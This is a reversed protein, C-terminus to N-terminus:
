YDVHSRNHCILDRIKSININKQTSPYEIHYLMTLGIIKNGLLM